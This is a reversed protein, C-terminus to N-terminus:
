TRWALEETLRKAIKSAHTKNTCGRSGVEAYWDGNGVAFWKKGNYILESVVWERLVYKDGDRVVAYVTEGVHVPCFILNGAKCQKELNAVKYDMVRCEFGADIVMDYFKNVESIDDTEAWATWAEQKEGEEAKRRAEIAYRKM